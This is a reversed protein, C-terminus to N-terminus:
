LEARARLYGDRTVVGVLRGAEVIPLSYITHEFFLKEIDRLGASPPAAVVGRDMCSGVPDSMRGARRAKQIERLGLFGVLAGQGDVVPAGTGDARELIIAAEMMSATSAVTLPDRGMLTEATPAASVGAQVAEWLARAVEPGQRGKVLASAARPHGGGGFARLIGRVDVGSRASRAILQTQRGRAFSSVSFLADPGETEFLQEGGGALGNVQHDLERYTTAVRHGRADHYSIKGMLDHFLEVQGPERLPQLFSIVLPLVAGCGTVWGGAEYDAATVNEHSFSGTDAYIGTLAITADEPGLVLGLRQAEV